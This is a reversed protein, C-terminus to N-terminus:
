DRLFNLITKRNICASLYTIAQNRCITIAHVIGVLRIEKDEIAFVGGGSNGYFMNMNLLSIHNENYQFHGKSLIQELGIPYGITYVEDYKKLDKKSMRIGNVLLKTEPKLLALDNESDIKDLTSNIMKGNADIIVCNYTGNVVHAATLVKGNIIVGSGSGNSCEVKVVYKLTTLLHIKKSETVEAKLMNFPYAIALLLSIYCLVIFARIM